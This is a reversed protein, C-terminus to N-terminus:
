QYYYPYWHHGQRPQQYSSISPYTFRAYKSKKKSKKSICENTPGIVITENKLPALTEKLKEADLCYTHALVEIPTKTLIDSGFIYEPYPADFIALLHTNNESAVEWHWWGQPINAVQGPRISINIVKNNFPNILSVVAAGSICYVLEAANQHYHPEVVRDESLYIDLLSVNGLTNLVDRGLRNIFNKSDRTNLRNKNVDSFYQVNANTYDMYSTSM